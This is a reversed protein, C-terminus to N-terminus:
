YLEERHKVYGISVLKCNIYDLTKNNVDQRTEEEWASKTHSSCDQLLSQILGFPCASGRAMCTLLLM